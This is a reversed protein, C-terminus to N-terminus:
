HQKDALAVDKNEFLYTVGQAIIMNNRAAFDSLVNSDLLATQKMILFSNEEQVVALEEGFKSIQYRQFTVSDAGLVYSSLLALAALMLGFNVALTLTIGSILNLNKKNYSTM